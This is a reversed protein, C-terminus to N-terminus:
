LAVSTPHAENWDGDEGTKQAAALGRQEFADQRFRVTLADGDDLVLEAFFVDVVVDQQM